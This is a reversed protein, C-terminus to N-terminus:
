RIHGHSITGLLQNEPNRLRLSVHSLGPEYPFVSDIEVAQLPTAPGLSIPTEARGNRHVPVLELLGAFFVGVSGSV